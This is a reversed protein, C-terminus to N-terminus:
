FEKVKQVSHPNYTISLIEMLRSLHYKYDQELALYLDVANTNNEISALASIDWSIIKASEQIVQFLRPRDNESAQYKLKILTKLSERIIRDRHASLNDMLFRITEENNSKKLLSLLHLQSELTIDSKYFAQIFTKGVKDAMLELSILAEPKIDKSGLFDIITNTSEYISLAGCILVANKQVATNPFRLLSNISSLQNQPSSSQLFKITKYFTEPTNEKLLIALQHNSYQEKTDNITIHTDMFGALFAPNRKKFSIVTIDKLLLNQTLKSLKDFELQKLTEEIWQIYDAPCFTRLLSLQVEQVSTKKNSLTELFRHKSESLIAKREKTVLSEELSSKYHKYLQLTIIAWGILIFTLAMSYHITTFFSILGLVSLIIGSLLASIENVTGDMKAQIDFRIKKNLSQYLLKFSPVELSDKLAKNFLKSLSILLFFFVFGKSGSETGGIYGLLIAFLTFVGILIPSIILSVKLGYTKVFKSYVFTKILFTFIMMSGTFFGLYRALETETPYQENIVILFSFQVFFATFMSFAVFLAMFLLYPKKFFALIKVQENKEEPEINNKNSENTSNNSELTYKNSIIIELIVALLISAASILLLDKTGSLFVLILPIIYSSLIIGFIQGADIFGFLRKGQRLNFIRSATGWFTVIALINLPGFFIFVCFTIWSSDSFQFLLRMSLTAIAIFVLTYKALLSFAIKSQLKSYLATLIIGVFGSVAYAKAIMEEPFTKLFLTHAGIDFAGTFIGLFISQIILLIVPLFEQEEINLNKLVKSYGM